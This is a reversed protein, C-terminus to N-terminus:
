RRTRAPLFFALLMGALSAIGGVLFVDSYAHSLVDDHLQIYMGYADAFGGHVLGAAAPNTPTLLAERDNTLQAQQATSLSTLVALGLAASARQVLQNYASGAGALQKPLASIGSTTIPMMALGPGVARLMLAAILSSRPLDPNIRCLLLIGVGALGMGLVGVWRAGFRDYVRGAIPMLVIMVAAQPLLVLGTHFATLQQNQQLFIPVYFSVAFLGVSQLAILVLSNTFRWSRFVRVNLLPQDVELEVVVFLALLLAGATLLILVRYGTWGWDAGESVALLVAFLGGAICLFGILDLRRTSTAALRPLVVLAAVAGFLGVPVNVYFILRWDVYEVLYGGLTPGIAPAVVMGLGYMGMATGIKGPPVIRYLVTMCTVPIMGGPIAQLVRFVIMMTLNGALGCLASAAVFGVLALLYLRKLGLREGLWASLPVVVGLGLNYATVVWEIDDTSAGLDNAMSALAVNVSTTNLVSMFMGVVIVALPLGWGTDARSPEPPPSTASESARARPAGTTDRDDDLPAGAHPPGDPTRPPTPRSAARTM